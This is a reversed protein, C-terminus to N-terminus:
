KIMLISLITAIAISPAFAIKENSGNKKRFLNFNKINTLTVVISSILMNVILFYLPFENYNISAVFYGIAIYIENDGSAYCKIVKLISSFLIYIIYSGLALTIDKGVEIQKLMFIVGVIMTIYNLICYVKQIKYDIYGTIILYITLYLYFIFEMKGQYEKIILTSFFSVLLVLIGKNKVSLKLRDENDVSALFNIIGIVVVSGLISYILSIM